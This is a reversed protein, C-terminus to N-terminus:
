EVYWGFESCKLVEAYGHVYTNVIDGVREKSTRIDYVSTHVVGAHYNCRGLSLEGCFSPWHLKVDGEQIRDLNV